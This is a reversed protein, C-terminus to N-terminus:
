TVSGVPSSLDLIHYKGKPPKWDSKKGSGRVRSLNVRGMALDAQAYRMRNPVTDLDACLGGYSHLIAARGIDVRQVPYRADCSMDWYEEYRNKALADAEEANWLHHIAGMEHAVKAWEDHSVSFFIAYAQRRPVCRLNSTRLRCSHVM